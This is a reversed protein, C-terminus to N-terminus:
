GCDGEGWPRRECDQLRAERGTCKVEDMWIPGRGEGFGGGATVTGASGLGLEQCVVGAQLATWGDDCVTCHPCSPARLRTAPYAPRPMSPLSNHCPWSPSRWPFNQRCLQVPM